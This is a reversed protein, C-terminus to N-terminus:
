SRWASPTGCRCRTRAAHLLRRPLLERKWYESPRGAWPRPSARRRVPERGHGRRLRGDGRVDAPGARPPLLRAHGPRRAGLRLGARHARVEPRPPAQLRRRLDPAVAGPARVLHDGGHLGRAGGTGPRDGPVGLRRPPQGAHRARRLGGVDARLRGLLAAPGVHGAPTGPLLVGGFLGAERAWRVERSRTTWENGLLIQCVGARRGPAEACFDALWRNHARLGAWRLEYEEARPRQRWSRRPPTSPRSRTRSSSRPSSATRRWTPWAAPRTGTATPPTRWCTRTRTSTPRRGRTSRTTTSRRWTPGTTWCTPAPTATRPSSPTATEASPTGAM